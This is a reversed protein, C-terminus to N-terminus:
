FVEAREGNIEITIIDSNSAEKLAEALQESDILVGPAAGTIIVRTKIEATPAQLIAQQTTEGTAAGGTTGPIGGGSFGGGGVNGAQALGTAAILGVQIAGLAKVKLTAAAIAAPAVPGLVSMSATIGMVAVATNQITKAIALGKSLAIAAIAATKSKQGLTQLLGLTLSVVNKEMQIKMDALRQAQAATEAEAERKVAELREFTAVRKESEETDIATLATQHELELQQMILNHERYGEETEVLSAAVAFQDELLKQNLLEKESMFRQQIKELAKTDDVDISITPFPINEAAIKDLAQKTEIVKQASKEAAEQVEKVYTRLNTSPLPAKVHKELAASLRFISFQSDAAWKTLGSSPAVDLGPIWNLAKAGAKNLEDFGTIIVALATTGALEIALFAFKVAEFGDLVFGIANVVVNLGSSVKDGMGAGSKASELLSENFDVIFPSVQKSLQNGLGTLVLKSKTWSDNAAEVKAADIRSMTVGLASLEIEADKIVDAGAEIINLMQGTRDGMLLSTAALKEARTDMKRIEEGYRAFLEDPKLAALAQVDLGLKRLMPGATGAGTQIFEGLRKTSQLLAKDMAASDVNTYLSTVHRLAQLKETTIGLADATKALADIASLSNKTLAIVGVGLGAGLVAAGRGVRGAQRGLSKMGAKASKIALKTKDTARIEYKVKPTPM